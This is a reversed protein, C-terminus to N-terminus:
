PWKSGNLKSECTRHLNQSAVFASTSCCGRVKVALRYGDASFLCLKILMEVVLKAADTHSHALLACVRPMCGDVALMGRMGAAGSMLAHVCQLSALLAERAEGGGAEEAAEAHADLAQLYHVAALKHGDLLFGSILRDLIQNSHHHSNAREINDQPATLINFM